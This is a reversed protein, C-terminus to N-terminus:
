FLNFVTTLATASGPGRLRPVGVGFPPALRKKALKKGSFQMLIFSIPGLPPACGWRGGQIQLYLMVLVLTFPHSHSDKFPSNYISKLQDTM